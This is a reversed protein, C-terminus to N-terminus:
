NSNDTTKDPIKALTTSKEDEDDSLAPKVFFNSLEYLLYLPLFVVALTFPDSSPTIVAAAILLAVIAHRRYKKFFSRNLLGLKSLLWSVLPLEFVVGMIFILMLFNDMYSDLSIQNVIMASLQYTTLFRFTMPFVLAYGVACGIFFMLTGFALALRVSKKENAYLAPQVFRWVEFVLYPFTLILALWFSTTMHRFFQSAMNINIIDVHFTDDCFDPLFPVASTWKCLDSYLFFDARTPGMIVSDYLYPMCIFGAIAFVVLACISRILTWRLEELHDWFSMKDSEGM